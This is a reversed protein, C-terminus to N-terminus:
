WQRWRWHSSAVMTLLLLAMRASVVVVTLMVVTRKTHILSKGEALLVAGEWSRQGETLAPQGSQIM